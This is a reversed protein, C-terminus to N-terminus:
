QEVHFMRLKEDEKRRIEKKEESTKDTYGMLHLVGHAMVRRLEEDIQVKYKEANDKIRDFSIFIDGHVENGKTYDFTIVDTLDTHGLYKENIELVKEDTSLIFCLNGPIKAESIIIEKLWDTYKKPDVIKFDAEYVFDIM